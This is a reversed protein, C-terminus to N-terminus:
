TRAAGWISSTIPVDISHIQRMRSTVSVAVNGYLENLYYLNIGNDDTFVPGPAKPAEM